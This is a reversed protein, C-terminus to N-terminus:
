PTGEGTPTSPTAALAEAAIATIIPRSSLDFIRGMAERLKEVETEARERIARADVMAAMAETFVADRETEASTARALAAALADEGGSVHVAAKLLGGALTSRVSAEMEAREKWRDREADLRRVEEAHKAEVALLHAALRDSLRESTAHDRENWAAVIADATARAAAEREAPTV